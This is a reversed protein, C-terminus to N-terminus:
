HVSTVNFPASAKIPFYQQQLNEVNIYLSKTKMQSTGYHNAIVLLLHLEQSSLGLQPAQVLLHDQFTHASETCCYGTRSM